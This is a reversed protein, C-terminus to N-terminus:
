EILSRLSRVHGKAEDARNMTDDIADRLKRGADRDAYSREMKNWMEQAMVIALRLESLADNIGDYATTAVGKMEALVREADSNGSAAAAPPPAAAAKQLEKCMAELEAVRARYQDRESKTSSLEQLMTE